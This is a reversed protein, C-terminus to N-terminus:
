SDACIFSESGRKGGENNQCSSQGTFTMNNKSEENPSQKSTATVWRILFQKLPNLDQTELDTENVFVVRGCL